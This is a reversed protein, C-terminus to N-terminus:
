TTLVEFVDSLLAAANLEAPEPNVHHCSQSVHGSLFDFVFVEHSM